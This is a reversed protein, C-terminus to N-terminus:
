LLMGMSELHEFQTKDLKLMIMELKPSLTYHLQFDDFGLEGLIENLWDLVNRNFLEHDTFIEWSRGDEATLTIRIVGQEIQDVGSNGFLLRKGVLKECLELWHKYADIQEFAEPDDFGTHLYNAPPLLEELKKRRDVHISKETPFQEILEEPIFESLSKAIPLDPQHSLFFAEQAPDYLISQGEGVDVRQAIPYPIQTFAHDGGPLSTLQFRGWYHAEFLIPM